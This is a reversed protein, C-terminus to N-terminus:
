DCPNGGWLLNGFAQAYDVVTSSSDKDYGNKFVGRAIHYGLARYAEFQAEDFFQDLTSHYPFVPNQRRYYELDPAENEDSITAKIYM